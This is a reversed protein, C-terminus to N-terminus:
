EGTEGREGLWYRVVALVLSVVLLLLAAAAAAGGTYWRFQSYYIYVEVVYSWPTYRMSSLMFVYDFLWSIMTITYILVLFEIQRRLQPITIHWLTQLWSAGDLAAAEFLEVEVSMLRAYLVVTAFGLERWLVVGMMTPVTTARESLWDHVLFQLGVAEFATNVIGHRALLYVFLISVVPIALVMPVLMFIRFLGSGPIKEYLFVALVLGLFVLVPVTLLFLANNKVSDWFVEDGLVYRLNDLGAFVYGNETLRQTSIEVLRMCPYVFIFAVWLLAPALFVWPRLTKWRRYGLRIM